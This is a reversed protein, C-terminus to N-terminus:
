KIIGGGIVVDEKYFVISQGPTVARQPEEFEVQIDDLNIKTIKCNSEKARYRIKARAYIPEDIQDIALWNLENAMLSKSYLDKEEGVIVENKDIDLKLVYLPRPYAIGLGKRQGVTYNILGKHEGLIEGTKLVIKGIKSKIDAQKHLFESYNNSPIFCIEESEKKNVVPLNNEKAIKRIESKDQYESLPFLTHELINKSIGYLFYTQDKKEAKSKKLVYRNYKESYETKAYHGTAIYKCGLEKAKEYFYGFKLYKNCKVCPNPTKGCQYCCIFDEIVYKKFEKQYDLIIHPIKLMKCMNKASQLVDESQNCLKMTAGIVEYGAQKLLIATVTSDIGGSMGLLVKDQM